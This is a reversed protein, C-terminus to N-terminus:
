HDLNRVLARADGDGLLGTGSGLELIKKGKLREPELSHRYVLYRCMVEGAPWNVGGCGHAADVVLQVDKGLGEVQVSLNQRGGTAAPRPPVYEEFSPLPATLPLQPPLAPVLLLPFPATM